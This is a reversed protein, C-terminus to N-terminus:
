RKLLNYYVIYWLAALGDHWDIKKGEAYTRGHYSIGVEYVRLHAQAIRATLEPEIGFRSAFLHPRIRELSSRSFAKYGTEMDSLNLGTCVNSLFTLLQNALYHVFYLVRRPFVTVFRSGYVVDADGDIIPQIMLRYEAPNYELDADQTIVVDGTTRAFGTRLAAGKGRNQDHFIVTHGTMNRLVAQTGDTSHDDVIIVEKEIGDMQVTEIRRLLERITHQENYVPIIISLKTM